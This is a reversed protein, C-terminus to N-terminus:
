ESWKPLRLSFVSGTGEDSTVGIEGGHNLAIHRVISLGLGASGTERSSGRDVRYFREFIRDVQLRPIGIGTDEVELVVSDGEMSTRVAISRDEGPAKISTYKIANDILNVVAATLQRANGGVVATSPVNGIVTSIGLEDAVSQLQAWADAVVEAISVPQPIAGLAEAESLNLIDAVLNAMRNAEAALRDALKQRVDPDTTDQLTHALLALAGLPTKMEHGINTIFDKRIADLKREGTLDEIYLVAGASEVGHELPLARLQLVRRTPTYIDLEQSAARRTVIVEDLVQRLRQEAVTEGHRAGLYRQGVDNVYTVVGQDDVIMVGVDLGEVVGSLRDVERQLTAARRQSENVASALGDALSMGRRPDDNLRRM